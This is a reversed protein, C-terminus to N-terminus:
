RGAPATRATRYWRRHLSRGMALVCPEGALSLFSEFWWQGTRSDGGMTVGPSNMALHRAESSLSREADWSCKM